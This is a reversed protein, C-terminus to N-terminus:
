HGNPGVEGPPVPDTTLSKPRKKIPRLVEAYKDFLEPTINHRQHTLILETLQQAEAIKDKRWAMVPKMKRVQRLLDRMLTQRLDDLGTFGGTLAKKYTDDKFARLKKFQKVRVHRPM